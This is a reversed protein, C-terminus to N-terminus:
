INHSDKAAISFMWVRILAHLCKDNSCIASYNECIGMVYKRLDLFYEMAFRIALHICLLHNQKLKYKLPERRASPNIKDFFNDRMSYSGENENRVSTRMQTEKEYKDM